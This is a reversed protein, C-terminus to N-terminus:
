ERRADVGGETEERESESRSIEGERERGRSERRPARRVEILTAAERPNRSGRRSIGRGRSRPFRAGVTPIRRRPPPSGGCLSSPSLSLAVAFSKDM